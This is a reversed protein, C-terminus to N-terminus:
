FFNDTELFAITWVKQGKPIGAVRFVTSQFGFGRDSGVTKLHGVWYWWELAYERHAGHDNPFIPQYDPSPVLYGKNSRLPPEIWEASVQLGLLYLVSWNKEDEPSNGILPQVYERSM